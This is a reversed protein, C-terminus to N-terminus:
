IAVDISILILKMNWRLSLIDSKNVAKLLKQSSFHQFYKGM